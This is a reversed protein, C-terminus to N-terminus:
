ASLRADGAGPGGDGALRNAPRSWFFLLVLLCALSPVRLPYDSLSALALVTIAVLAARRLMQEYGKAVDAFARRARWALVAFALLALVIGAMGGTLALDLWDNHAQNMYTPALLSDPEHIRYVADFTGTGTGWPMYTELMDRVTPLIRARMDEGPSREFLRDIARDRGFWVTAALGAAATVVLLTALRWRRMAADRSRDSKLTPLYVLALTLAIAVLALGTGARSGTVIILILVFLAYPIAVLGRYSVLSPVRANDAAGNAIPSASWVAILPFLTALFAANHNRNAFLGVAEGNNTIAYFYLGGQPDGIIQLLSVLGNLAGLVLVFPVLRRRSSENMRVLLVLMALPVVLSWFANRTAVPDMSLPRWSGELGAFRDIEAILDRNPLSQWLGPPLPILQLLVFATIALALGMEIWYERWQSATVAVVSTFLVIAAIPRLVALSAIDGRSGGGLAFALALFGCAMVVPTSM